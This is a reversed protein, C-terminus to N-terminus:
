NRLRHRELTTILPEEDDVTLMLESDNHMLTWRNDRRLVVALKRLFVSDIAVVEISDARHITEGQAERLMAAPDKYTYIKLQRSAKSARHIRRASPNGIDIWLATDGQPGTVKLSPEDGLCLGPLLELGDQYNLAYALTRTLLFDETESPHMPVRVDIAEYVSRDIDSLQIRFRYLTAPNAV